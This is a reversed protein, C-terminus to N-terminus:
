TRGRAGYIDNQGSGLRVTHIVRSNIDKIIGNLIEDPLRLKILIKNPITQGEKKRGAIKDTNTVPRGAVVIEKILLKILRQTQERNSFIEDLRSLYNSKFAEFVQFYGESIENNAIRSTIEKRAEINRKYRAELDNVEEQLKDIDIIGKTHQERLTERQFPYANILKDFEKLRREDEKKQFKSSELNKYYNFTDIPNQFLEKIFNILYEEIEKAPIPISSCHITSKKLNRRRCTYTYTYNGKGKDIEKKSGIWNQPVGKDLLEDYCTSCKLLGTLLYIHETNVGYNTNNKKAESILEQAQQFQFPNIIKQHHYESLKWQDKPLKINKGKISKSKDYYYNGIYIEETLLRRVTRDQWFDQDYKKNTNKVDTKKYLIASSEPSYIHNDQLYKAIQQTTFGEKTYLDFIKRVHIAEEELVALKGNIDKRYGFPISKNLYKGEKAAVARGGHTRIKINEIELESIVGIIGLMAKGFPTSTDISEHVSIFELNNDELYDIVDLLIRLKRAFRDIKYVAVVDFPKADDQAYNIDERLKQFAPRERIDMTGSIDDYYIYQEGAFQLTASKSRILAQLAELQNKKGYKDDHAQEDTSVRIYFAVRKLPKENM